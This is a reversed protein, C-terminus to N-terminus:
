RRRSWMRCRSDQGFSTPRPGQGRSTETTVEAARRGAREIPGTELANDVLSRMEEDWIMSSNWTRRGRGASSAQSHERKRRTENSVIRKNDVVGKHKHWGQKKQWQRKWGQGEVVCILRKSGGQGRFDKTERGISMLAWEVESQAVQGQNRRGSKTIETWAEAREHGYM